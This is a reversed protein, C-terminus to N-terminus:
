TIFNFLRRWNFNPGPDVKGKGTGKLWDGSIMDHGVIKNPQIWMGWSEYLLSPIASLALYQQLNPSKEHIGAYAVGISFDNVNKQGHLMSRGAHWAKKNPPVLEVVLGTVDILYHYSLKYNNLIDIISDMNYPNKTNTYRASIYHIVMTDVTASAPRESFHDIHRVIDMSLVM